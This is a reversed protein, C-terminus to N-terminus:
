RRIDSGGTPETVPTESDDFIKSREEVILSIWFIEWENGEEIKVDM